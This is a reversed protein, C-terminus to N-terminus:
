IVTSAFLRRLVIVDKLVAGAVLEGQFDRAGLEVRWGGGFGAGAVDVAVFDKATEFLDEGRYLDTGDGSGFDVGFDFRGRLGRGCFRGRLLQGDAYVIAGTMGAMVPALHPVSM